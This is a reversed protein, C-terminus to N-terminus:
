GRTEKVAPLMALATLNEFARRRCSFARREYRELKRLAPQIGSLARAGAATKDELLYECAARFVAKNSPGANDLADLHKLLVNADSAEAQGRLRYDNRAAADSLQHRIKAIRDLTMQARAAVLAQTLAPETPPLSGLLKNAVLTM